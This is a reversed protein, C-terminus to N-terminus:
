SPMQWRERILGALWAVEKAPRWGLLHTASGARSVLCLDKKGLSRQRPSASTRIEALEERSWDLRKIGFLTTEEFWLHNSDVVLLAHRRGRYLLFLVALVSGLWFPVLVLVAQWPPAFQNGGQWRVQGQLAAPVWLATFVVLFLNWLGCWLSFFCGSARVIGDAPLVVILQDGREEVQATSGLPQRWPSAAIAHQERARRRRLSRFLPKPLYRNGLFGGLLLGTIVGGFFDVPMWAGFQFPGGWALFFFFVFAGAFFGGLLGLVTGMIRAPIMLPDPHRPHGPVVAAHARPRAEVLSRRVELAEALFRPREAGPVITKRRWLALHHGASEVYWGPHEAFFELVEVAFLRRVTEEAQSTSDTAPLDKIQEGLKKLEKDLGLSLYYHRQFQEVARATEPDVQASDFTIGPIGLVGLMRMGLHRPRLEFAPLHDAGPLVVVTQTYYTSGEDGKEAYTYDLMQIPIGDVQGALRNTASDWDAFLRLQSAAGLDARSVKPSYDLGMREAAAILELAHSRHRRTTLLNGAAGCVGGVLGWSYYESWPWPLRKLLGAGNIIAFFSIFFYLAIAVVAGAIAAGFWSPLLKASM